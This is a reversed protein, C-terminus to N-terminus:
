NRNKCVQAFNCRLIPLEYGEPLYINSIYYKITKKIKM